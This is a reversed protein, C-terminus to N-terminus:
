LVEFEVVNGNYISIPEKEKGLFIYSKLSGFSFVFFDMACWRTQRREGAAEPSPKGAM